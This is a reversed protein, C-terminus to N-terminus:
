PVAPANTSPALTAPANTSYLAPPNPTSLAPVNTTSLAPVNNTTSLPVNTTSLVPATNRDPMTGAQGTTKLAVSKVPPNIGDGKLAYYRQFEAMRPNFPESCSIVLGVLAFILLLFKCSRKMDTNETSDQEV